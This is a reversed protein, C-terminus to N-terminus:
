RRAVCRGTQLSNFGTQTCAARRKQRQECCVKGNSPFQFRDPYLRSAEEATARLWVKGNSPFQFLSERSETNSSRQDRLVGERKFPISVRYHTHSGWFKQRSAVCRGTQLSNFRRPMTAAVTKKYRECCVKGNSPFQFSVTIDFPTVYSVKRAVCRGTQLSNFCTIGVQIEITTITRQRCWGTQLSHTLM